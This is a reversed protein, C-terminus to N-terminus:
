VERAPRVHRWLAAVLALNAMALIVLGLYADGAGFRALLVAGLSPALAQAVLGPGALRGALAPYRDPGFLALPLAGRAISYIGNGGGYLILALAPLSLGVWLLLLGLAILIMAAALTWFPHHKGGAAMEIVRAAVQSPGVLAGLGVAAALSLGSEQLLTILHVSVVSTTAGAVVWIGSLLLFARWESRSLSVTSKRTATKPMSADAAITRLTVLLLPLSIGVQIAAYVFCTGRWGLREVLLASLPWCVTSAFGGWLTLHTIAPRAKERYLWGLAAFAADYLGAGMGAGLVAWALLYIGLNPATGLLALGFGLLLASGALVPRGGHDGILRGVRPSVLGAVLLGLSLGGVVWPLPWGTDDSIPVALVALLYYSSGWALIQTTGLATIVVARDHATM